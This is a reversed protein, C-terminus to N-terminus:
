ADVSTGAKELEARVEDVPALDVLTVAAGLEAVAKATARGIGSAAGTVAIRRGALSFAAPLPLSQSKSKSPKAMIQAGFREIIPALGDKYYVSILASQIKKTAPM